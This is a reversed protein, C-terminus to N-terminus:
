YVARARGSSHDTACSHSRDHTDGAVDIRSGASTKRQCQATRNDTPDQRISAAAAADMTAPITHSCGALILTPMLLTLATSTIFSKM